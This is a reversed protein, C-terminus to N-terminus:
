TRAIPPSSRAARSRRRSGARSAPRARARACRTDVACDLTRRARRMRPMRRLRSLSRSAIRASLLTASGGIIALALRHLEARAPPPDASYLAADIRPLLRLVRLNNSELSWLTALAACVTVLTADDHARVADRLADELNAEEARLREAARPQEIGLLAEPQPALLLGAQVLMILLHITNNRARLRFIPNSVMLDLHLSMAVFLLGILAGATTGLMVYLDRWQEPQFAGLLHIDM